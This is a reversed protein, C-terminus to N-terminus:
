KIVDSSMMAKRDIEGEIISLRKIVAENVYSDIRKSDKYYYKLSANYRQTDIKNNEFYCHYYKTARETISDTEFTLIGEIIHLDVLINIM